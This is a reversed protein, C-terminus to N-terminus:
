FDRSSRLPQRDAVSNSAIPKTCLCITGGTAGVRRWGSQSFVPDVLLEFDRWAILRMLERIAKLAAGRASKARAM